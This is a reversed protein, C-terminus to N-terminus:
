FVRDFILKLSIASTTIVLILRILKEGHKIAMAAGIQAGIIGGLALIIGQTWMVNGGYAFVLLAGLSATASIPKSIATAQLTPLNLFAICAITYFVTASASFFGDYFALFPVVFFAFQQVNLRWKSKFSDLSPTAMAWIALIILLTPVFIKLFNTPLLSISIAGLASFILTVPLFLAMKSNEASIYGKKWFKWTASFLMPVGYFNQTAIAQVPSLGALLLVPTIFLGSGGSVSGIVGGLMGAIFLLFVNLLDMDVM